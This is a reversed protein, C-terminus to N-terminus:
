SRFSSASKEAPSPAVCPLRVCRPLPGFPPPPSSPALSASEPRSRRLHRCQFGLEPELRILVSPAPSVLPSVNPLSFSSFFVIRLIYGMANGTFIRFVKGFFGFFDAIPWSEIQV